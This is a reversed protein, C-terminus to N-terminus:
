RQQGVLEAGSVACYPKIGTDKLGRRNARKSRAAGPVDHVARTEAAEAGSELLTEVEDGAMLVMFQDESCFSEIEEVM